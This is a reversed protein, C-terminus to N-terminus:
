QGAHNPPMSTLASGFFRLADDGASRVEDSDWRHCAVSHQDNTVELAPTEVRCREVAFRCSRHFRCGPPPDAPDPPESRVESRARRREIQPDAIPVAALLAHTYPHRPAIFLRDRPGAEMVKGGYMVVVDH